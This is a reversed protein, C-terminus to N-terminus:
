QKIIKHTGNTTEGNIRIIYTGAPLETLDIETEPQRILQERLVLRGDLAYVAIDVEGGDEMLVHVVSSTPNPYLSIGSAVFFQEEYVGQCSLAGTVKLLNNGKQLAVTFESARTQTAIGNLEITYIESGSLNLSLSQQDISQSAVVSIAEPESIVVDFCIEEYDRDGDVADICVTYTGASLDAQTYSTLFSQNFVDGNGSINVTHDLSTATEITITGNNETRCSESTASIVFNDSAFRYIPCGTLDVETGVPTGACLDDADFIGDGDEDPLFEGEACVDMTFSNLSGGDFNETDRITLVWEGAISEGVFVDFGVLPAVTGSIGPDDGCVFAEADDTFTANINSSDGCSTSVLIAEKGSPSTLTIVLDSLFSHNLELNVNLHTLTLDDFFTVRSTVTPTGSSSISIPLGSGTSSICNQVITTFIRSTGFNGEGCDNRPRIRWFYTAENLLNSPNYTTGFVTASDVLNTFGNDTAVQIDYSTYLDNAEWELFEFTSVNSAGDIPSLLNVEPFDIGSLLLQLPLEKSQSAGVARVTIDYSGADANATDNLSLSVSTGDATATAPSFTATIGDPLGSVEFSVEESFGSYTEYVFPITTSDPQCVTYVTQQTNLVIDSEAIAFNAENVAFFINGNGRVMIRANATATGPILVNHSGDNVTAEALFTDFTQGGDISLLIDVLPTSVPAENTNAVNWSVEHVEGATYSTGAPQSNLTFADGTDVVNVTVIESVLQGGGAANDRVTLAFNLARQISSVTEWASNVTPRTQTLNGSLVRSLQPFYRTPDESPKLSRFNAGTPNTPGFSSQSVIGNDIQEWTYTLNDGADPDSASGTLQFATSVPVIYDPIPEIVPPNNTLSLMAGCTKQKLTEIIQVISIYHFYADSNLAVNNQQTIGAYGMITTGSGPEVQVGSGESEFSWSHNAGLQHGLEHAVFDIDFTDGEPTSGSSYASGKIGDTCIGGIFGANGGNVGQHFLHGIDYNAEGISETLTNQIEGNFSNEGSFPDTDPDTFIIQDNDAILELTVALETEFIQNIRTLTANIAALADAVTGGHFETYEGSAAVALRYRRLVGDDVPRLTTGINKSSISSETTCLFENDKKSLGERAYAVYDNGATKQIYTNTAKDPYVMMAQIGKPSVSFSVKIDPNDVGYGSYSKIEPYKAALEPALISSQNVFFAINRGTKM